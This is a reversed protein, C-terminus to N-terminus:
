FQRVARTVTINSTNSKLLANWSAGVLNLNPNTWGWCGSTACQSSSNFVYVSVWGVSTVVNQLAKGEDLSPMFWDAYGGLTYTHCDNAMYSGAGQLALIADSNAKGTGVATGTAGTVNVCNYPSDNWAHNAGLNVAGAELYRWGNSYSGKDYFLYGGAPGATNALYLKNTVAATAVTGGQGDSPTATVTAVGATSGGTVTGASAAVWTANTTSWTVGPATANSPLYTVVLAESSGPLLLLSAKNLTVSAVRIGVPTFASPTSQGSTGSTGTAKVWVYYSAYNTLGTLTCSTASVDTGGSAQNGPLANTTSAYVQYLTAGSVAAWAVSLQGSGAPGPLTTATPAGPAAPICTFSVQPGYGTGVSNTAYARVYYTTGAALGALASSYTGSSVNESTHAGTAVPNQGTSWCVGSATIPWDGYTAITGGTTATSSTVSTVASTTLTPARGATWRAYLTVASGESTVPYADGDVYDTGSGDARTNWRDFTFNVREFLNGGLRTPEDPSLALDAMSGAGTAPEFNPVFTLSAWPSWMAWLDQDAYGPVFSAENVLAVLGTETTAWGAFSQATRVFGNTQLKLAVGVSVKQAEMAGTGGNGHFNVVFDTSRGANAASHVDNPASFGDSGLDCSALLVLGLLGGLLRNM